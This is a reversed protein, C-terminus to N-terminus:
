ASLFRISCCSAAAVGLEGSSLAAAVNRSNAGGANAPGQSHVNSNSSAAPAFIRTWRFPM